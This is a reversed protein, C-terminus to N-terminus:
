TAVVQEVLSAMGTLAAGQSADLWSLGPFEAYLAVFENDEESWVVRYTYHKANM